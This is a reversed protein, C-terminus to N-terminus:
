FGALYLEQSGQAKRIVVGTGCRGVHVLYSGIARTRPILVKGVALSVNDYAAARRREREVNGCANKEM